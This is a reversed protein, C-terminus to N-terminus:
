WDSIVSKDRTIPNKQIQKDPNNDFILDWIKKLLLLIIFKTKFIDISKTQYDFEQPIRRNIQKQNITSLMILPNTM